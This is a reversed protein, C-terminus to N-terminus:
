RLAFKSTPGTPWCSIRTAEACFQWVQVTESDHRRHKRRVGCMIWSRRTPRIIAVHLPMTTGSWCGPRIVHTGFTKRNTSEAEGSGIMNLNSKQALKMWAFHKERKIRPLLNDAPIWDGGQIFIDRGNVNFMFTKGPENDLPRQIVIISRIGFQTTSVDLTVRENAQLIARAKYLSQEGQGYPWWLKPNQLHINQRELLQTESISPPRRSLMSRTM